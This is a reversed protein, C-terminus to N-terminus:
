FNEFPDNELVVDAPPEASDPFHDFNHTDDDGRVKPVFPTLMKRNYLKTWNINAFWKHRKIDEVGNKLNGLRNTIDPTLLRSILDKAHRNFHAPYEIRGALIKQYIGMPDDDVFPPAGALMEYILIGLAWWDVPKGHGKNLLIEPAIYEPTGCLTWTRFEVKKAFGFDTMKINGKADLLLNEPKLDRYVIDKSHLYQFILVIQAAYFCSSDNNFRGARRLHTFFEGGVVYEMALYLYKKDQFSAFMNVIFPHNIAQLITKESLIHDVQKLRLIEAKKLIKIAYFKGSPIHKAFRVRGFSGTGLTERLEFDSLKWLNKLAQMAEVSGAKGLSEKLELTFTDDMRRLGNRGGFMMMSHGGYVSASHYARASPGSTTTTLRTWAKTVTDLLNLDNFCWTGNWGGFIVIRRDFAISTHGWRGAPSIGQLQPQHWQRTSIDYYHVDNFYGNHSKGGFVYIRTDVAVASHHNRPTPAKPPNLLSWTWTSFDLAYLDNLFECEASQGGFIYAVNDVITMTHRERASPPKGSTEIKKWTCTSLSLEYVENSLRGYESGGFVIMRDGVVVLAHNERAPPIFGGNIVMEKWTGDSGMDITFVDDLVSSAGRGGYIVSKSGWSAQRHSNRLPPPTGRTREEVWEM